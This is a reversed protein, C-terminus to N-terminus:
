SNTGVVEFGGAVLMSVSVAGCRLIHLVGSDQVSVLTSPLGGAPWPPDALVRAKAIRLLEPDIDDPRSAAELGSRNASSSVLPGGAERCLAAAVPHPTMRLASRCNADRVLASLSDRVKVVLSLSGPWFRRAVVREAPTLYAFREVMDWDSVILPFPKGGPRGKALHVRHVAGDLTALCGLAYLTETPYVLVGGERLFTAESELARNM